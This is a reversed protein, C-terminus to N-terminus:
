VREFRSSTNYTDLYQAVTTLYRWGKGCQCVTPKEYLARRVDEATRLDYPTAELVWGTGSEQSPPGYNGGLRYGDSMSFSLVRSETEDTIFGYTGREAIYVAFGLAKIREAFARADNKLYSM